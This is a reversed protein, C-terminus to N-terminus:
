QTRALERYVAMLREVRRESSFSERVLRQGARCLERRTAESRLAEAMAGTLSRVDGSPVLWRGLDGTMVEPVAGVTTAVVATGHLLSELLVNPLGESLSPIVVLDLGAYVESLNTRYGSFCVREQLRLQRVLARLRGGDVGEGVLAARVHPVTRSLDALAQLFVEQGKESSFRGIVGVLLDGPGAGCESRFVGGDAALRYEAPDIANHVVRMRSPSVGAAQFQGAMLQSMVVLRDAKRMLWRDLRNYLVIRRDESTYGHAFAVWPLGTLHKLCWAICAPKYGHSQVLTVGATRVVKLAQPILGPDYRHRELFVTLPFGRRRTEEVAPPLAAGARAFMGLTIHAGHPEALKTLQFLGRCPGSVQRTDIMALVRVPARTRGMGSPDHGSSTAETQQRSNIELKTVASSM